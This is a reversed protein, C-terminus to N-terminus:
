DMRLKKQTFRQEQDLTFLSKITNIWELYNSMLKSYYDGSIIKKGITNIHNELENLKELKEINSLNNPKNKININNIKNINNQNNMNNQNHMNNKENANKINNLIDIDIFPKNDDNM